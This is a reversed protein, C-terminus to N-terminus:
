PNPHPHHLHQFPRHHDRVPRALHHPWCIDVAPGRTLRHWGQAFDGFGDPRRDGCWGLVSDSHDRSHDNQPFRLFRGNESVESLLHDHMPLLKKLLNVIKCSFVTTLRSKPLNIGRRFFPRRHKRKCSPINSFCQAQSSAPASGRSYPMSLVDSNPNSSRPLNWHFPPKLM